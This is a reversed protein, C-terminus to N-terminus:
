INESSSCAWLSQLGATGCCGTVLPDEMRWGIGIPGNRDVEVSKDVWVATIGAPPDHMARGIGIACDFDTDDSKGVTWAGCRELRLLAEDGRSDVSGESDNDGTSGRGTGAV